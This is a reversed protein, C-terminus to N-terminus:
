CNAVQWTLGFGLLFCDNELWGNEPVIKTESPIMEFIIKIWSM